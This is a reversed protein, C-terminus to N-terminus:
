CHSTEGAVEMVLKMIEITVGEESGAKNVLKGVMNRLDREHIRYVFQEFVSSLHENGIPFDEEGNGKAIETISDVFYKNFEDAMEKVNNNIRNGCLLEEYERNHSISKLMDKLLRWMHKPEGKKKDLRKELYERKAKRCTDVVKNRLQKFLDWEKSSNNLRKARHALDRYNMLKYIDESFWQKEQWKNKIVIPKKLAVIDICAVITDVM